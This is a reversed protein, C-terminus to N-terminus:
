VYLPYESQKVDRSIGVWFGSIDPCRLLRNFFDKDPLANFFKL